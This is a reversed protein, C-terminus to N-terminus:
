CCAWSGVHLTPAVPKLPPYKEVRLVLNVLSSRDEIRLPLPPGDGAVVVVAVVVIVFAASFDSAADYAAVVVVVVLAVIAATM